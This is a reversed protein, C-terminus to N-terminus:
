GKKHAVLFTRISIYRVQPMGLSWLFVLHWGELQLVSVSGDLVLTHINMVKDIGEYMYLWSIVMKYFIV